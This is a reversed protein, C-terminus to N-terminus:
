FSIHLKVDTTWHHEVCVPICYFYDSLICLWSPTALWIASAKARTQKRVRLYFFCSITNVQPSTPSCSIGLEWTLWEQSTLPRKQAPTQCLASNWTEWLKLQSVVTTRAHRTTVQSDRFIFYSTYVCSVFKWSRRKRGQFKVLVKSFTASWLQKWDKIAM